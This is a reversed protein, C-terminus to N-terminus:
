SVIPLEFITSRNLGFVKLQIEVKLFSPYASTTKFDGFPFAGSCYLLTKGLKPKSM